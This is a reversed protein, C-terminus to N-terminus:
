VGATKKRQNTKRRFLVGLRQLCLKSHKTDRKTNQQLHIHKPIGRQRQTDVRQRQHETQLRRPLREAAPRLPLLVGASGHHPLPVGACDSSM